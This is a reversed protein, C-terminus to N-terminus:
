IHILSLGRGTFAPATARGFGDERSWAKSGGMVHNGVVRRARERERESDDGDDSDSLIVIEDDDNGRNLNATSARARRKVPPSSDSLDSEVELEM